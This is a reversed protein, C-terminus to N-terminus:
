AEKRQERDKDAIKQALAEAFGDEVFKKAELYELSSKRDEPPGHDAQSKLYFRIDHWDQDDALKQLASAVEKIIHGLLHTQNIERSELTLKLLDESEPDTFENALNLLCNEDDRSTESKGLLDREILEAIYASRKGRYLKKSKEDLKKFIQDDVHASVTTPM